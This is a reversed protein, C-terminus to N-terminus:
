IQAAAMQAALLASDPYADERREIIGLRAAKLNDLMDSFRQQSTLVDGSLATMAGAKERRAAEDIAQMALSEDLAVGRGITDRYTTNGLGRSIASGQQQAMLSAFRRRTAEREADGMNDMLGLVDTQRQRFADLITNGRTSYDSTRQDTESLLQNYRSENAARAQNFAGTYSEIAAQMSGRMRAREDKQERRAKEANALAHALQMMAFNDANTLPGPGTQAGHGSGSGMGPQGLGAYGRSQYAIQRGQPGAPPPMYPIQGEGSLMPGLSGVAGGIGGFPNGLSGILGAAQAATSNNASQSIFGTNAPSFFSAQQGITAFPNGLSGVLSAAQFATPDPGGLAGAIPGAAFEFM